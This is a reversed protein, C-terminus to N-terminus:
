LLCHLDVFTLNNKNFTSRYKTRLITALLLVLCNLRLVRPCRTRDPFCSAEDGESDDLDVNSEIFELVATDDGDSLDGETTNRGDEGDVTDLDGNANLDGRGDGIEDFRLNRGSWFGDLECFNSDVVEEVESDNLGEADYRGLEDESKEEGECADDGVPSM